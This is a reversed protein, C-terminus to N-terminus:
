VPIRKLILRVSLGVSLTTVTDIDLSLYMDDDVDRIDPNAAWLFANDTANSTLGALTPRNGSTTYITTGSQANKQIGQTPNVDHINIDVITDGDEGRQDLAVHVEQIYHTRPIKLFGAVNTGTSTPDSVYWGIEIEDTILNEKGRDTISWNFSTNGASFNNGVFFRNTNGGSSPFGSLVGGAGNGRACNGSFILETTSGLNFGESANDEALNGVIVRQDNGLNTSLDFGDGTNSKSVCGVCVTKNRIEFGDGINGSSICANVSSNESYIVFGVSNNGKALCGSLNINKASTNTNEIGNKRNGNLNTDSIVFLNGAGITIGNDRNESCICGDININSFEDGTANIGDGENSSFSSTAVQIYYSNVIKLGHSSNVGASNNNTMMCGLVYCCCSDEIIVGDFNASVLCNQMSFGTAARVYVAEKQSGAVTLNELRGGTLCTQAIYSLGSGLQGEHDRVLTITTAGGISDIEYFLGRISIYDGPSLNTFTTGSGTVIKSSGSFGDNFSITGTTEKTGGSGDYVFGFAGSFAVISETVSEGVIVFGSPLVIDATEVCIGKRFFITKKGATVAASITTYDGGGAVDVVADYIPVSAVLLNHDIYQQRGAVVTQLRSIAM